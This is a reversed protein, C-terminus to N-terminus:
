ADESLNKKIIKALEYDIKTAVHVSREMPMEYGTLSTGWISGTKRYAEPLIAKIAGNLMFVDPLLSRDTRIAEDGWYPVLKDDKYSVTWATYHQDLLGISTVADHEGNLLIDLSERVDRETRLPSSPQLVCFADYKINNESEIHELIKWCPLFSPVADGCMSDDMIYPVIAGNDEAHKAIETDDTAVYIDGDVGSDRANEIAIRLLSKGDIELLNKRALRKSGGRAPIGFFVKSM